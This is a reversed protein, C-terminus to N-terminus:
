SNIHRIILGTRLYAYGNHSVLDGHNKQDLPPPTLAFNYIGPWEKSVTFVDKDYCGFKNLLESLVNSLFRIVVVSYLYLVDREYLCAKPKHQTVCTKQSWLCHAFICWFGNNGDVFIVLKKVLHRGSPLPIGKGSEVGERGKVTQGTEGCKL